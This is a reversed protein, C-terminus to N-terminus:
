TAADAHRELRAILPMIRRWVQDLVGAKEVIVKAQATALLAAETPAMLFRGVVTALDETRDIQCLANAASLDDIVEAFNTMSPGCIVTCGAQMPEILNQGGHAILSGGMFVLKAVDYFTGLEGITDAIYLATDPTIAEGRSRLACTVGASRALAAIDTGRQPHRPAILTLLEPDSEALRQHAAVIQAHEGPHTSAALWHARQDIAARLNEAEGADIPLPASAYKLTGTVIPNTAGLAGLRRADADTQALVAAFGRLLPAVLGSAQQWRRFSRASLRAQILATPIARAQTAALLNPWFESEVWLALAPQWHDLFRRVARPQDIPVFQHLARGPLRERLLRASTVTGSTVLVHRDDADALIRQIIPLVSLAEGVSAAHIWILTGPPRAAGAIGWREGLREPDEKGAAVRRRLLPGALPSLAITLGRYLAPLMAPQPDDSQSASAGM